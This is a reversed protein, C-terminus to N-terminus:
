LKQRSSLKSVAIEPLSGLIRTLISQIKVYYALTIEARQLSDSFQRIAHIYELYNDTLVGVQNRRNAFVLGLTSTPVSKKLLQELFTM